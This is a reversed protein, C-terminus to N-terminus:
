LTPTGRAKTLLASFFHSLEGMAHHGSLECEVLQEMSWARGPKEATNGATQQGLIGPRVRVRNGTEKHCCSPHWPVLTLFFHSVLVFVDAKRGM